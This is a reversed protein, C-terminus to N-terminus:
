GRAERLCWGPLPVCSLPAPGFLQLFRPREERPSRAHRVQQTIEEGAKREYLHTSELVPADYEQFGCLRATEKFHGFLWNRERMDEPFM